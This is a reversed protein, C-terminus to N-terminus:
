LIGRDRCRKCYWTGVEVSHPGFGTCIGHFWVQCSDCSVMFNGDDLTNNPPTCICNIIDVVEPQSESPPTSTSKIRLKLKPRNFESLKEPSDVKTTSVKLNSKKAKSNKLEKKKSAKSSELPVVPLEPERFDIIEPIMREKGKRSVSSKTQLPKSLKVESLTTDNIQAPAKINGDINGKSTIEVRKQRIPSENLRLPYGYSEMLDKADKEDMVPIEPESFLSDEFSLLSDFEVIKRKKRSADFSEGSIPESTLAKEFLEDLLVYALPRKLKQKSPRNKVNSDASKSNSRQIEPISEQSNITYDIPKPTGGEISITSETLGGSEITKEQIEVKQDEKVPEEENPKIEPFPPLWDPIYSPRKKTISLGENHNLEEIHEKTIEGNTNSVKGDDIPTTQDSSLAPLENDEMSMSMNEDDKSDKNESNNQLPTNIESIGEIDIIMDDEVEKLEKINNKIESSVLKKPTLEKTHIKQGLHETKRSSQGNSEIKDKEKTEVPLDIEETESSLGSRLLDKLLTPKRGAYGGLVKGETKSWERLEELNIGLDEFAVLVDATNVKTRGANTAAEQASKGLFMLYEKLVDALVDGSIRSSKEFGASALTQHTARRIIEACFKEM